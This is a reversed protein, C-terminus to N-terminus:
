MILDVSLVVTSAESTRSADYSLTEYNRLLRMGESNALIKIGNENASVALLSGDKNFRIRPSAPLSGDVDISNLLQVNDMEWFKISFDDGAALFLNKTTDFQVVGLSRKHFGLYARKVTGESENWEYICSKGEKSTGCSFLRTGDASYAMTTCWHGLTNYDVRSGLNDYLWVSLKGDLATSFIFQINEKHHPCVSYVPADRGEFNFLKAGTAADWVKITKDDGCTIVCLKKNPHSFALDNVGGVHADIELHQRVDDGGNYAHIQVIHRSYAVGFLSGDPSWIVRNVSVGPDKILAAQIPMTFASLEWVKFNKLVLRERSCVEWLGIDGVNTGVLLLTQQVPHFDMSMPSSGQNLTRIVTRPLDESANFDQSHSHGPFTIPLVNVPLNVLLVTSSSGRRRQNMFSPSSTRHLGSLEAVVDLSPHRFKSLSKKLSFQKGDGCTFVTYAYNTPLFWKLQSRKSKLIMSKYEPILNIIESDLYKTPELTRFSKRTVTLHGLDVIVESSPLDKSFIYIILQEDFTNLPICIQFPGYETSTSTINPTNNSSVEITPHQSTPNSLPRSSSLPPTPNPPINHMSNHHSSINHLNNDLNKDEASSFKDYLFNVKRRIDDLEIKM